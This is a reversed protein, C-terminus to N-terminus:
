PGDPDGQMIENITMLHEQVKRVLRFRPDGSKDPAASIFDIALRVFMQGKDNMYVAFVGTEDTRTALGLVRYLGGRFHRYVGPVVETEVGPASYFTNNNM